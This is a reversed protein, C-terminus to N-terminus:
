AETEGNDEVEELVAEYYDARESLILGGVVGIIAGFIFGVKHLLLPDKDTLNLLKEKM